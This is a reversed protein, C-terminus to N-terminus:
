LEGCLARVALSRRVDLARLILRRPHRFLARMNPCMTDVSASGNYREVVLIIM